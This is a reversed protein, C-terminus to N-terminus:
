AYPTCYLCANFLEPEPFDSWLDFLRSLHDEPAVTGSFTDYALTRVRDLTGYGCNVFTLRRKDIQMVLEHQVFFFFNLVNM